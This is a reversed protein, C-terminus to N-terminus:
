RDELEALLEARESQELAVLADLTMGDTVASLADTVIGALTDPTLSEAQWTEDGDFRRRDTAKPPASPLGHGRAQEPTVAVRQFEVKGGYHEAWATVDEAASAFVHTGSPDHDGVHLVVVPRDEDAARRAAAVKVTLSDFGSSSYVPVGFPRALRALQPAM